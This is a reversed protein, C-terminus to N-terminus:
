AVGSPGFFFREIKIMQNECKIESRAALGSIHIEISSFTMSGVIRHSNIITFMEFSSNRPPDSSTLNVKKKNLNANRVNGM